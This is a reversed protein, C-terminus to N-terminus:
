FVIEKSKYDRGFGLRTMNSIAESRLDIIFISTVNIIINKAAEPNPMKVPNAIAVLPMCPNIMVNSPTILKHRPPNIPYRKSICFGLTRSLLFYM